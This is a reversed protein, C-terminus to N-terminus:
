LGVYPTNPNHASPAVDIPYGLSDARANAVDAWTAKPSMMEGAAFAAMRRAHNRAREHAHTALRTNVGEGLKELRQREAINCHTQQLAQRTSMEARSGLRPAYYKSDGDYADKNNNASDSRCNGMNKKGM